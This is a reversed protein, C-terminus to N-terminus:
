VHLPRAHLPQGPARNGAADYAAYIWDGNGLGPPAGEGWGMARRQLFRFSSGGEAPSADDFALAERNRGFGLHAL